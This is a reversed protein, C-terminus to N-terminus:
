LRYVNVCTVNLKLFMVTKAGNGVFVEIMINMGLIGQSIAFGKDNNLIDVTLGCHSSYQFLCQECTYTM